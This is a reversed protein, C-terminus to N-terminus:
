AAHNNEWNRLNLASIFISLDQAGECPILRYDDPKLQLCYRKKVKIGYSELAANEYAATQLGATRPVAGSKIDILTHARKMRYIGDLTGAYRYRKSAVRLERHLPAADTESLFRIYGSLYPVLNSDLSAWDLDGNDYLETVQHVATGFDAARALIDPDIRSLNELPALVQTVSPVPEGELYYRHAEPEFRIDFKPQM